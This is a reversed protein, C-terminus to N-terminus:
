AQRAARDDDLLQFRSDAHAAASRDTRPQLLAPLPEARARSAAATGPRNGVPPPLLHGADARRQEAARDGLADVSVAPDPLIRRRRDPSEDPGVQGDLGASRGAGRRPAVPLSPAALDPHRLSRSPDPLHQLRLPLRGRHPRRAGLAVAPYDLLEARP